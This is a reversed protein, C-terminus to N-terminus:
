VLQKIANADSVVLKKFPIVCSFSAGTGPNSKIFIDGDLEDVLSKVARLGLGIGTNSADYSSGIKSFKEFIMDQKEQPIGIGTDAVTINVITNKDRQEIASIKIIISGQQTFKIANSVLNILIKQIRFRDGAIWDPLDAYEYDLVVDKTQVSPKFMDIISEVLGRLDFPKSLIPVIGSELQTFELIENLYLLLEESSKAIQLLYTKKDQDKEDSALVQALSLIGSFPTRIDHRM